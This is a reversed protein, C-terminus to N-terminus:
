LFIMLIALFRLCFCSKRLRQFVPFRFLYIIGGLTGSLRLFICAGGPDLIAIRDLPRAWLARLGDCVQRHQVASLGLGSIVSDMREEMQVRADSSSSPALRAMETFAYSGPLTAIRTFLYPSPLTAM